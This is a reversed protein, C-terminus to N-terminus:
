IENRENRAGRGERQVPKVRERQEALMDSLKKLDLLIQRRSVKPKSVRKEAAEELLRVVDKRALMPNDAQGAVLGYSPLSQIESWLKYDREDWDNTRINKM